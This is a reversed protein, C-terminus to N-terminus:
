LLPGRLSIAVPTGCEPCMGNTPLGRLHYGCKRCALDSALAPLAPAARLLDPSLSM